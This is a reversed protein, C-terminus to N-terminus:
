RAYWVCYIEDLFDPSLKHTLFSNAYALMFVAICRRAYELFIMDQLVKATHLHAIATFVGSRQTVAKRLADNLINEMLVSVSPCRRSIAGCCRHELGLDANANIQAVTWQVVCNRCTCSALRPGRHHEADVAPAGMESRKRKAM